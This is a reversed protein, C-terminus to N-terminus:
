IRLIAETDGASVNLRIHTFPAVLIIAGGSAYDALDQASSWSADSTLNLTGDQNCVEVSGALTTTVLLQIAVPHASSHGDPRLQDLDVPQSKEGTDITNTGDTASRMRVVNDYSM